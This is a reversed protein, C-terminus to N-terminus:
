ESGKSMYEMHLPRHAVGCVCVGRMDMGVWAHRCLLARERMRVIACMGNTHRCKVVCAHVSQLCSCMHEGCGHVAASRAVHGLACVSTCESPICM